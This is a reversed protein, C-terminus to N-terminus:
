AINGVNRNILDLTERINEAGETIKVSIAYEKSEGPQLFPLTGDERAKDRGMVHCNGPELGLVYEGAGMSKWQTLMPLGSLDYSVTVMLQLRDNILGVTTKGDEDHYLNHFFVQEKYHDAPASIRRYESIGRRADEDRPLVGASPLVLRNGEDLMPYGFNFHYLLMFPTPSFGLNQISDRIVFDSGLADCSVERDLVLHEGFLRAQKVKGQVSIKANEGTMDVHPCVEYAPTNSIVGHLGLEEGGDTCAAGMYTLGCTTLFGVHFNRMFGRAGDETFYRSGTLGTNSLFSLNVGKYSLAAIDMGRDPLVTINLGKETYLEVVRMGDAKSGIRTYDKIGFVQAADGVYRLLSETQM